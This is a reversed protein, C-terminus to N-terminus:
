LIGCDGDQAVPEQTFQHNYSTEDFATPIFPPADTNLRTTPVGATNQGDSFSPAPQIPSAAVGWECGILEMVQLILHTCTRSFLFVFRLKKFKKNNGKNKLINALLTFYM